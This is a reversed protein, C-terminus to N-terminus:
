RAVEWFYPDALFSIRRNGVIIRGSVHSSKKVGNKYAAGVEIYEFQLSCEGNGAAATEPDFTLAGTYLKNDDGDYLTIDIGYAGSFSLEVREKGSGEPDDYNHEVRKHNGGAEDVNMWVCPYIDLLESTNKPFTASYNNEEAWEGRQVIYPKYRYNVKATSGFLGGSYNKGTGNVFTYIKINNLASGSYSGGKEESYDYEYKWNGSKVDKEKYPAYNAWESVAIGDTCKSFVFSDNANVANINKVVLFRVGYPGIKFNYTGSGKKAWEAADVIDALDDFYHNNPDTASEWIFWGEYNQAFLGGGSLAGYYKVALEKMTAGAAKEILTEWSSFISNDRMAEYLKRLFHSDYKVLFEILQASIYDPDMKDTKKFSLTKRLMDFQMRSERLYNEDNYKKIGIREQWSNGVYTATSEDMWRSTRAQSVYNRQVFHFLEHALTCFLYGSSDDYQEGLRKYDGYSLIEKDIKIYSNNIGTQNSGFRGNISLLPMAFLADGGEILPMMTGVNVMMPWKKRHIDYEKMYDTLITEMDKLLENAGRESLSEISKPVCLMFHDSTYVKTIGLCVKIAKVGKDLSDVTVNVGDDIGNLMDIISNPISGSFALATEAAKRMNQTLGNGTNFEIAGIQDEIQSLNIEAAAKGDKWDAAVDVWLTDEKDFDDKIPLGVQIFCKEGEAPEPADLSVRVPAECNSNTIVDYVKASQNDHEVKSKDDLLLVDGDGDADFDLAAEGYEVRGKAPAAAGGDFVEKAELGSKNQASIEYGRLEFIPGKDKYCSLTAEDSDIIKYSTDDKVVLDEPFIDWIANEVGNLTRGVAKYPGYKPGGFAEEIWIEGPEAGRGSNWHFTSVCQLRYSPSLRFSAGYEPSNLLKSTDGKYTSIILQPYGAPNLVVPEEKQTSPQTDPETAPNTAPDTVPDTAPNTAPDTTPETPEATPPETSKSLPATKRVDKVTVKFSLRQTYTKKKFKYKVTVKIKASGKKKAVVKGKSSVAATKKDSSKYTVKKVSVGKAKKLKIATTGYITKGKKDSIKLTVSSKKLSVKKKAAFSVLPLSTVVGAFIILSLFVSILKKM